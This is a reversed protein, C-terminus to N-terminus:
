KIEEVTQKVGVAKANPPVNKRQINDWLHEEAVGEFLWSTADRRWISWNRQHENYFLTSGDEQALGIYWMTKVETEM